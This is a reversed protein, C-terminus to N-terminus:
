TYKDDEKPADVDLGQFLKQVEKNTMKNTQEMLVTFRRYKDEVESNEFVAEKSGKVLDEKKEDLDEKENKKDEENVEKIAEQIVNNKNPMVIENPLGKFGMEKWYRGIFLDAGKVKSTITAGVIYGNKTPFQSAGQNSGLPVFMAPHPPAFDKMANKQHHYHKIINHACVEAELGAIFAMASGAFSCDGIAFINESGEVQLKSNVM